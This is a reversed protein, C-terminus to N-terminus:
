QENVDETEDTVPADNPTTLVESSQPLGGGVGTRFGYWSDREGINEGFAALANCAFGALIWDPTDGCLSELSHRNILAELEKEFEIWRKALNRDEVPLTAAALEGTNPSESPPVNVGANGPPREDGCFRCQTDQGDHIRGCPNECLWNGYTLWRSM